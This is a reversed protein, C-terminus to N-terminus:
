QSIMAILRKLTIQTTELAQKQQPSLAGMKEAITLDLPYLATTLSTQIEQRMRQLLDNKRKEGIQAAEANQAFARFLRANVLSISAYDSIAEALTHESDGFPKEARRVVTLLGVAENKVKVPIVMASKGLAAIKFNQLPQGHIALTELSMAVLPGLGDDFPQGIRRALAEPLNRQAALVFAKTNEDKITLWGLDAETVGTIAEVIKDFLVRQDTISIVARGVAFITSLERVRQQLESNTKKIQADLAERARIERVQKLAREVCSALEAERVPLIVYDSAGLRFAQIIKAEQGKEAMIIMPISMGQSTLAVLIDKGSLGPLNINTIVLDPQLQIAQRIASSGDMAVSVQYGLPKLIQRVILDSIGPDSEVVLIKESLTNAM